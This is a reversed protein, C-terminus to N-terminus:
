IFRHTDGGEIILWLKKYRLDVHGWQRDDYIQTIYIHTDWGEIM